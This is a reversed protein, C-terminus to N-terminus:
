QLLFVTDVKDNNTAADVYFIDQTPPAASFDFEQAVSYDAPTEMSWGAVTSSVSSTGFYTIGSAGAHSKVWVKLVKRTTNAIRVATGANPVNTTYFEVHPAAM